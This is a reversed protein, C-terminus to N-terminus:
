PNRNWIEPGGTRPRIRAFCRVRFSGPNVIGVCFGDRFIWRGAFNFVTDLCSPSFFSWHIKVDIGAFKGLEISNAM